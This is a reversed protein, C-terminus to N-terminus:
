DPNIPPITKRTDISNEKHKKFAAVCAWLGRGDWDIKETQYLAKSLEDIQKILAQDHCLRTVDTLNLITAGPWQEKAWQLLAARILEPQNTKCAQKVQRLGSAEKKIKGNTRRQRWWLLMTVIWAAAFGIALWVIYYNGKPLLNPVDKSQTSEQSTSVPVETKAPTNTNDPLSNTSATVNITLEPLTAVEATGKSINFWPVQVEPLTVQGPKDFLYTVKVTSTGVVNGQSLTNKETPKEKYVSVQDNGNFELPPMIQAPLGTAQFTVTRILTSGQELSNATRDYTEKLEVQNAPLWASGKFSEPEKKVQLTIAPAQATIQQPIDQFLLANFTPPKITLAGSKQPFIAYQQEEVSYYKGNQTLQYHKANGLSILLGDEITPGQFSADLLRKSSYLKVTYIVQENLYPQKNSVDATLFLDRQEDPSDPTSPKAHETVDISSEQTQQSGVTISPIPITGVRNPLLTIVWQFSAHAVGNTISYNSSRETGVITFDSRLPSLNPTASGDGNEESLILHFPQGMSVSSEDVEATIEAQAVGALVYLLMAVVWRKM